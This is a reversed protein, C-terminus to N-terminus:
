VHLHLVIDIGAPPVTLRAILRTSQTALADSLPVITVSAQKEPVNGHTFWTSAIHGVIWITIPENTIPNCLERSHDKFPQYVGWTATPLLCGLAYINAQKNVYSSLKEICSDISVSYM